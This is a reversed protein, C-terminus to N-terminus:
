SSQCLCAYSSHTHHSNFCQIYCTRNLTANAVPLRAADWDAVQEMAKLALLCQTEVTSLRETWGEWPRSGSCWPPHVLLGNPHLCWNVQALIINVTIIACWGICPTVALLIPWGCLLTTVVTSPPIDSVKCVFVSCSVTLKLTKKLM